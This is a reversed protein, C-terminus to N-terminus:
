QRIFETCRQELQKAYEMHQTKNQVCNLDIAATAEADSIRVTNLLEALGEFRTREKPVGVDVYIVPTGMALCPLACHLRSTIVLKANEYLKLLRDALQFRSDETRYDRALYVHSIQAASKVVEKGFLRQLIRKRRGFFQPKFLVDIFYIEEGPRHRYSNGLTLTLCGSFFANIGKAKLLSLTSFDRAGVEFKKLYSVEADDLVVAAAKKTFHVSVFLPVINPSPPWNEPRHMFWGNMILKTKPGSYKSLEERNIYRDVKPLFQRAALSQMYDGINFHSKIDYTMLGYQM